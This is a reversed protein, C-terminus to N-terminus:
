YPEVLATKTLFHRIEEDDPPADLYEVSETMDVDEFYCLQELFLKGNFAGKFIQESKQILDSLSLGRKLLFYIDVYDKWKCRRGMAYAKMSGIVAPEPMGISARPWPLDVPVPFPFSFYTLKVGNVFLTLEDTTSVMTHDIVFGRKVIKNILAQPHIPNPMALDFDVSKRHGIQLALATGGCLYFGKFAPLLKASLDLQQITLVNEHM